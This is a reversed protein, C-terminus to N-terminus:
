ERTAPCAPLVVGNRISDRTWTEPKPANGDFSRFTVTTSLTAGPKLLDDQHLHAAIASALGADQPTALLDHWSGDAQWHGLFVGPPSAPCTTLLAIAPRDVSVGTRYDDMRAAIIKDAVEAVDAGSAGDRLVEVQLTDLADADSALHHEGEYTRVLTM